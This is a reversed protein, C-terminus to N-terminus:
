TGSGRIIGIIEIVVMYTAILQMIGFIPVIIVLFFAGGPVPIFIAQLLWFWAFYFNFLTTFIVTLSFIVMNFLAFADLVPNGSITNEGSQETILSTNTDFITLKAVGLRLNSYNPDNFAPQTDLYFIAANVCLIVIIFWIAISKFENM